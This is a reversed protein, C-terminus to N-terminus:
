GCTVREIVDGEAIWINLRDPLFDMTVAMGPQIVRVNQGFRMTLLVRASQGVLGQLEAAGCEDIPLPDIPNQPDIENEVCAAVMLPLILAAFYRVPMPM